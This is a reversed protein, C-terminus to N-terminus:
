EIRLIDEEKVLNLKINRKVKDVADMLEITFRFKRKNRTMIKRVLIENVREDFRDIKDHYLVKLLRVIMSARSSSFIGHIECLGKLDEINFDLLLRLDISIKGSIFQSSGCKCSCVICSNYYRHNNICGCTLCVADTELFRKRTNRRDEKIVENKSVLDLTM